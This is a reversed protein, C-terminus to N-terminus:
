PLTLKVGLAILIKILTDIKVNVEGREIVAYYNTNLHAKKAVIEQTLKKNERAQKLFEGVDTSSKM